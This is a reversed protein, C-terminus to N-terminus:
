KKVFVGLHNPGYNNVTTDHLKCGAINKNLYAIEESTLYKSVIKKNRIYEKIMNVTTNKKDKDIDIPVNNYVANHGNLPWYSTHLDEIIYLGGPKLYKFLFGFSIQQQNMYHGGDDIIIDLPMGIKEMAHKLDERNSQDGRLCIVRDNNLRAFDDIDIAFIKSNPFYKYWIKLSPGTLGGIGIELFNLKNLRIKDFYSNYVPSYFHRPGEKEYCRKTGKDSHYTNALYSLFDQKGIKFELFNTLQFIRDVILKRFLSSIKNKIKKYYYTANLMKKNLAYKKLSYNIEKEQLGTNAMTSTVQSPWVRIAILTEKIIIPLGYSKYLRYYLECDNKWILNTDLLLKEGINKFFAVAPAGITNIGMIIRDNYYPIKIREFKSNDSNTHIFGSAGWVAEPNEKFINDIKDLCNNAYIFDDQHIIKIIEGKAGKLANNTNFSSNGRNDKYRIYILLFKVSWKKCLDEIKNDISQDSVIVEFDKFTQKELSEFVEALYKDGVGHM